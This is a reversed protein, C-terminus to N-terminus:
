CVYEFECKVEEICNYITKTPYDALFEALSTSDSCVTDAGEHLDRRTCGYMACFWPNVKCFTSDCDYLIRAPEGLRRGADTYKQNYILLLESQVMDVIAKYKLTSENKLCPHEEAGPCSLKMIQGDELVANTWQFLFFFLFAVVQKM